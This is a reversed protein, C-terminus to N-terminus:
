HVGGMSIILDHDDRIAARVQIRLKVPGQQVAQERFASFHQGRSVEHLGQLRRLDEIAWTNLSIRRSGAVQAVVDLWKARSVGISITIERSSRTMLVREFRNSHSVADAQRISPTAVEM